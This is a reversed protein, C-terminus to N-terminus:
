SVGRAIILGAPLTPNIEPEGVVVDDILGTTDGEAAALSAGGGNSVSAAIVMTNSPM